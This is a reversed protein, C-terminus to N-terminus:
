FIYDFEFVCFVLAIRGLHYDSGLERFIERGNAYHAICDVYEFVRSRVAELYAKGFAEAEVPLGEEHLARIQRQQAEEMADPHVTLLTNFLDFGIAKPHNM